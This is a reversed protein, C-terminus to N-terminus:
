KCQPPLCQDLISSLIMSDLGGSFLVAVPTVMSEQSNSNLTDLCTMQGQKLPFSKTLTSSCAKLLDLVFFFQSITNGHTCDCVFLVLKHRNVPHNCSQHM